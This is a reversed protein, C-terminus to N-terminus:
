DDYFSFFLAAGQPAAKNKNRSLIVLSVGNFGMFCSIWGCMWNM